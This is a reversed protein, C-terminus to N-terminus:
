GGGVFTLLEVSDGEKLAIRPWQERAIIAKNLEAVLREPPHGTQCALEILTTGDAVPKDQGNLTILM